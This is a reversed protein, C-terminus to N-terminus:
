GFGSSLWPLWKKHDVEFVNGGYPVEEQCCNTSQRILVPAPALMCANRELQNGNRNRNGDGGGYSCTNEVEGGWVIILTLFFLCNISSLKGVLSSPPLGRRLRRSQKM